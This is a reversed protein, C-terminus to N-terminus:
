YQQAMGFILYFVGGPNLHAAATAYANELDANSTQYSMVHFLSIVADFQKGIRVNRVDGQIFVLREAIETPLVAKRAEARSLMVPSLDVGVVSFGLRALQEAHAGTGCGLDLITKANKNHKLIHSADYKAEGAYDKDRYLLDYYHAYHDFVKSM